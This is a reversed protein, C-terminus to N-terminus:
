AAAGRQSFALAKAEVRHVGAFTSATMESHIRPLAPLAAIVPRFATFRFGM